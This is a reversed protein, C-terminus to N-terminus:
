KLSFSKDTDFQQVQFEGNVVKDKCIYTKASAETEGMKIEINYKRGALLGMSVSEGYRVLDSKKCTEVPKSPDTVNIAKVEFIHEGYSTANIQFFGANTRIPAPISIKESLKITHLAKDLGDVAFFYSYFGVKPEATFEITLASNYTDPKTGSVKWVWFEKVSLTQRYNVGNPIEIGDDGGLKPHYGNPISIVHGCTAGRKIAGVTWQKVNFSENKSWEAGFGLNADINAKASPGDSGIEASAGGSVNGELTFSQSENVDKDEPVSEPWLSGNAPVQVNYGSGVNPTSYFQCELPFFYLSRRDRAFLGSHYIKEFGHLTQSCDWSVDTEIVYYDAKETFSYLPIIRYDCTVSIPCKRYDDSRKNNQYSRLNPTPNPVLNSTRDIAGISKLNLKSRAARTMARTSLVGQQKQYETFKKDIKVVWQAFAKVRLYEAPALDWINDEALASPVINGSPEEEGEENTSRFSLFQDGFGTLGILELREFDADPALGLDESYKKINEEKPDVVLLTGYRELVKAIDAKNADTIQDTIVVMTESNVQSTPNNFWYKIVEDEASSSLSGLLAVKINSIDGPEFEGEAIEIIKSEPFNDGEETETTETDDDDKCSTFGTATGLMLVAAVFFLFFKKTMM